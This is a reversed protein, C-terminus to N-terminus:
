ARQAEREEDSLINGVVIPGSPFYFTKGSIQENHM